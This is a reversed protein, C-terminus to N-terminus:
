TQFQDPECCLWRALDYTPSRRGYLLRCDAVQRWYSFVLANTPVLGVPSSIVEPNGPIRPYDCNRPFTRLPAIPEGAVAGRRTTAHDM